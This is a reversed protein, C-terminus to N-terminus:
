KKVVLMFNYTILWKKRDAMLNRITDSKNRGRRIGNASAMARLEDRTYGNLIISLIIYKESKTM